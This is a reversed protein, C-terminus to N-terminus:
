FLKDGVLAITAALIAFLFQIFAQTAFPLNCESDVRNEVEAQWKLQREIYERRWIRQEAERDKQWQIQLERSTRKTTM